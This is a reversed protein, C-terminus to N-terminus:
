NNYSIPSFEENISELVIKTVKELREQFVARIHDKPASKFLRHGLDM